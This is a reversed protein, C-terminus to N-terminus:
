NCGGFTVPSPRRRGSPLILKLCGRWTPPTIADSESSDGRPSFTGRHFNGSVAAAGDWSQNPARKTSNRVKRISGMHGSETPQNVNQWVRTQSAIFFQSAELFHWVATVPRRRCQIVQSSDQCLNVRTKRNVPLVRTQMFLTVHLNISMWFFNVFHM